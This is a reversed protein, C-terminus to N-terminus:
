KDGSPIEGGTATGNSEHRRGRTSTKTKQTTRVPVNGAEMRAPNDVLVNRSVTPNNAPNNTAGVKSTRLGSQRVEWAEIDLRLRTSEELISQKISFDVVMIAVSVVLCVMLMVAWFKTAKETLEM